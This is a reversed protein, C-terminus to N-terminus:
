PTPDADYELYFLDIGLDDGAVGNAVTIYVDQAPELLCGAVPFDKTGLKDAADVGETTDGLDAAGWANTGGAMTTTTALSSGALGKVNATFVMDAVAFDVATMELSAFVADSVSHLGANAAARGAVTFAAKLTAKTGALNTNILLENAAGTLAAIWTFTVGNLVVVEAAAAVTDISLTGQAAVAENGVVYDDIGFLATQKVTNNATVAAHTITDLTAPVATRTLVTVIRNAANADAIVETALGILRWYKGTPVAITTAANGAVAELHHVGPHGIENTTDSALLVKATNAGSVGEEVGTADFAVAPVGPSGGMSSGKKSRDLLRAM